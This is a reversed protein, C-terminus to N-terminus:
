VRTANLAARRDAAAKKKLFEGFKIGFHILMGLGVMVCSVYPLHRGPNRVVQLGTRKQEGESAEMSSQYFTAGDYRLPHNMWITVTRDEGTRPDQLRITSAFNRTVKTGPYYDNEIKEATIKYPLYARKRRFNIMYNKDGAVLKQPQESVYIGVLYTGLSEGTDNQFFEVLAAPLNPRGGTETGAVEKIAKLTVARGVGKNAQPEEDATRTKPESTNVMYEHVRLHFPLDPLSVRNAPKNRKEDGAAKSLIEGPINVVETTDGDSPKSITLEFRNLDSMYDSTEGEFLMMQDENAREARIFEGALLVMMGAHLIWIGSRKWTMKFRVVHAAILNFAMAWGIVYGGPFPILFRGPNEPTGYIRTHFFVETFDSILNLDVWALWCYFYQTLVREIGAHKQALTGMFVLFLSLSFLVMTVRLSAVPKLIAWLPNPRKNLVPKSDGVYDHTQSTNAM